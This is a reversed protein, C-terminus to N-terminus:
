ELKFSIPLVFRVDIKKGRQEGPIWNPMKSVVAVAAEDCGGGIGRIVKIDNVEGTKTVVFQVYVKGSIGNEKASDPYVTNQRIFKFLEEEGGPFSPQTEVVEFIEEVVPAKRFDIRVEQELGALRKVEKNMKSIEENDICNLKDYASLYQKISNINYEFSLNLKKLESTIEECNLYLHADNILEDSHNTQFMKKESEIKLLRYYDKTLQPKSIEQKEAVIKLNKIFEYVLNSNAKRTEIYIAERVLNYYELSTIEKNSKLFNAYSMKLFSASDLKAIGKKYINECTDIYKATLGGSGKRKNTYILYSYILAGSLYYNESTEGCKEDIARWKVLNTLPSESSLKKMLLECEVECNRLVLEEYKKKTVCNTFLIITALFLINKM